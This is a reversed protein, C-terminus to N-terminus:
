VSKGTTNDFSVCEDFAFVRITERVLLRDEDAWMQERNKGYLDGLLQEYMEKSEFSIETVVDFPLPETLGTNLPNLVEEVYRRKYTTPRVSTLSFVLPIHANEYYSKFEEATLSPQKQICYLLRYM